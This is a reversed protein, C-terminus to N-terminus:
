GLGYKMGVVEGKIWEPNLKAANYILMPPIAQGAANACAVITIQGKQGSCRYRVKKMQRGKPSVVKPPNPNLSVGSEDANFIQAPKNLLDHSSLVDHLLSFYHEITDRNADM